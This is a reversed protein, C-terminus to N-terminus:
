QQVRHRQSRSPLHSAVVWGLLLTAAAGILVQTMPDAKTARVEHLRTVAGLIAPRVLLRKAAQAQRDPRPFTPAPRRLVAWGVLLLTLGIIFLGGGIAAYAWDIGFRLAVFHFLAGIGVAIAAFIALLGAALMGGAIAHGMALRAGWGRLDALYSQLLAFVAGRWGTQDAPDMNSKWPEGM